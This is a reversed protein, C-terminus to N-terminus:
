VEAGTDPVAWCSIRHNNSSIGVKFRGLDAQKSVGNIKKYSIRLSEQDEEVIENEEESETVRKVYKKARCCKTFHGRGDCSRCKSGKAPCERLSKHWQNGCRPCQKQNPVLNKAPQPKYVKSITRSHEGEEKSAM